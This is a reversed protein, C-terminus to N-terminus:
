IAEIISDIELEQGFIKRIEELISKIITKEKDSSETLIDKYYKRMSEDRLLWIHLKIAKHKGQPFMLTTGKFIQKIGEKVNNEKAIKVIVEILYEVVTLENASDEAIRCLYPIININHSNSLEYVIKEYREIKEEIEEEMEDDEEADSDLFRIKNLEEILKLEEENSM